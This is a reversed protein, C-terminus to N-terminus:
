LILQVLNRFDREMRERNFKESVTRRANEGLYTRLSQDIALKLISDIFDESNGPHYLIGDYGSRIAEGNACHDPVVTALGASMYELISLSFAEGMSAHVAIDSSQLLQGVDNRRGGFIVHDEISLGKAMEKFEALDPGDGCHIFRMNKYKKEHIIKAMCYIIFDIGKYYTARGTTIVIIENEPIGFVERAYQAYKKEITIPDIGNYVYSCKAPPVCGNKTFRDYVFKSVGVYHTCSFMGLRHMAKKIIRKFLPPASREGPSHDHLVINEVGLLRLQLYRLSLLSKDTLYVSRVNNRRILHRLAIQGAWSKDSFDLQEVKIPSAAIRHTIAEIVPYILICVRGNESVTRSIQIWLDEIFKWAYGVDSAYNAVLLVNGTKNRVGTRTSYEYDTESSTTNSTNQVTESKGNM